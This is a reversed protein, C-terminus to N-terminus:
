VIKFSAVKKWLVVSDGVKEEKFSGATEATWGNDLLFKKYAQKKELEERERADRAAKERAEREERDKKEKAEREIRAREDARAKEERERANREEELKREGEKLVEERRELEAKEAAAKADAAERDKRNKEAVLENFHTEFAVSDMELIKAEDVPFGNAELRQRREPMQAIRIRRAKELEAAKEFDKLRQEEPEIIAILDKEKAIVARQYDLADQRYEKGAKEISVRADRLKLRARKVTDLQSPDDLNVEVIGASEAVLASLKEITPDFQTLDKM